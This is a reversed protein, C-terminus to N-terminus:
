EETAPYNKFHISGRGGNNEIYDATRGDIGMETLAVRISDILGRASEEPDGGIRQCLASLAEAERVTLNISLTGLPVNGTPKALTIKVKTSM